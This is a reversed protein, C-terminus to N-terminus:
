SYLSGRGKSSQSGHTKFPTSCNEFSLFLSPLSFTRSTSFLPSLSAFFLFRLSIVLSFISFFLSAKQSSSRSSICELSLFIYPSLSNGKKSFPSLLFPYGTCLLSSFFLTQLSLAHSLSIAARSLFQSFSSLDIPPFLSLFLCAGVKKKGRWCLLSKEKKHLLSSSCSFVYILWFLM